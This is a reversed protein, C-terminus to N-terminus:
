VGIIDVSECKRLKCIVHHHCSCIVCKDEEKEEKIKVEWEEGEKRLKGNFDVCVSEEKEKDVIGKETEEDEKIKRLFAGAGDRKARSTSTTDRRRRRRVQTNTYKLIQIEVRNQM